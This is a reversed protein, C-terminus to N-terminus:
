AGDAPIHKSAKSRVLFVDDGVPKIDRGGGLVVQLRFRSAYTLTQLVPDM